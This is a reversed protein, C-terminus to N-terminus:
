CVISSLFLICLIVFLKLFLFFVSFCYKQIHFRLNQFNLCLMQNVIQETKLRTDTLTQEFIENQTRNELSGDSQINTIKKVNKDIAEHFLKPEKLEDISFPYITLSPPEKKVKETRNKNVTGYNQVNRKGDASSAFHRFNVNGSIQNM